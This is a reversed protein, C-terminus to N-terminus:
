CGVLIIIAFNRVEFDPNLRYVHIQNVAAIVLNLETTSLFNCYVCHEVGTPPHMQKYIAYM